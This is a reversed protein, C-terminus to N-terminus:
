LIKIGLSVIFLNNKLTQDNSDPEYIDNLGIEYRVDLTLLLFDVGAGLDLGWGVNKFDSDQLPDQIVEDGSVEQNIIFNMAPGALIRFNIKEGNIIKYGVLAPICLNQLTIEDELETGELKLKGGTTSYYFEPQLYLRKGLRVFAGIQFGHKVSEKIDDIDTSLKSTAYGAKIGLDFQAFNQMAVFLLVALFVFKKM